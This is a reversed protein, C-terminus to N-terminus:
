IATLAIAVRTMFAEIVRKDFLTSQYGCSLTATDPSSRELEVALWTHERFVDADISCSNSASLGRLNPAASASDVNLMIFPGKPVQDAAHPVLNDRLFEFPIEAHDAADLVQDRVLVTHEDLGTQAGTYVRLLRKDTLDGIMAATDETFRRSSTYLLARDPQGTMEGLAYLVASAVQIFVSVHGNAATFRARTADLDAIPLESSWIAGVPPADPDPAGDITPLGAPPFPGVSDWIPRWYELAHRAQPGQLLRREAACFETFDSVPVPPEGAAGIKANEPGPERYALELEEFFFAISSGDFVLHDVALGLQWETEGLRLLRARTLPYQTPDFYDQLELQIRHEAEACEDEPMGRLDVFELPWEAGEAACCVGQDLVGHQFSTRLSTHRQAVRTLASRLQAVNLDGDIRLGFVCPPWRRWSFPAFVSALRGAQKIGTPVPWTTESTASAPRHITTISM